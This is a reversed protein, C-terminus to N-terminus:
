IGIDNTFAPKLFITSGYVSDMSYNMFSDSNTATVSHGNKSGSSGSQFTTSITKENPKSQNKKLSKNSSM